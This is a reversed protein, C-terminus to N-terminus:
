PGEACLLKYYREIADFKGGAATNDAYWPQLCDLIQKKLSRTLPLMGVGYIIMLLPDGQTAGVKSFLVIIEGEDGRIVLM